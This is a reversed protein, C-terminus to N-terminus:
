PFVPFFQILTQISYWGPYKVLSDFESAYQMLQQVLTLEPGMVRSQRSSFKVM